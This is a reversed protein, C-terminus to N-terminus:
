YFTPFDPIDSTYRQFVSYSKTCTVQKILHINSALSDLETSIVQKNYCSQSYSETSTRLPRSESDVRWPVNQPEWFGCGMADSPFVRRIMKLVSLVTCFVPKEADNKMPINTPTVM